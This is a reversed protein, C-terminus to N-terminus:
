GEYDYYDKKLEPEYEIPTYNRLTGTEKEFMCTVTKAEGHRNKAVILELQGPQRNPDYYDPRFILIVSDADQEISGSERLDSLMPKNGTREEVKRSLQSLCIVPINLEKAMIKLNRSIESIEQVRNESKSKTASLLQLYDVILLKIGYIDKWKRARAKLAYISLNPEDDFYMPASHIYELCSAIHVYDDASVDGRAISMSNVGSKWSVIRKVLQESSMELSFIGVPHGLNFCVHNAIHMAVASKGMAPRGALITLNSNNLGNLCRDLDLLGSPIGSCYDGSKSANRYNEQMEQLEQLFSKGSESKSGSIIEEFTKSSRVGRKKGILFFASQAENLVDEVTKEVKGCDLIIGNAAFIAQRLLSMEKVKDISDEITHSVLSFQALAVLASFTYAEGDLKKDKLANCVSWCDVEKDKSYLEKICSFIKQNETGFFDEEFLKYCATIMSSYSSLMSGIVHLEHDRSFPLNIQAM